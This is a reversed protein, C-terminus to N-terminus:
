YGANKWEEGEDDRPHVLNYLVKLINTDEYPIPLQAKVAETIARHGIIAAAITPWRCQFDGSYDIAADLESFVMTEFILPEGKGSFNHNLGLWVTSIRVNKGMYIMETEAVRVYEQNNFLEAYKLWSIPRGKRDFYNM